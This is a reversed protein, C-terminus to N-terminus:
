HYFWSNQVTDPYERVWNNGEIIALYDGTPQCKGRPERYGLGLGLRYHLIIFSPSIAHLRDADARLMKQTGAYHTASFGLQEDSM